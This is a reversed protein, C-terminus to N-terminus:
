SEKVFSVVRREFFFSFEEGFFRFTSFHFLNDISWTGRALQCSDFPRFSLFPLLSFQFRVHCLLGDPVGTAGYGYLRAKRIERALRFVHGSFWYGREVRTLLKAACVERRSLFVPSDLEKSVIRVITARSPVRISFNRRNAKAFVADNKAKQSSKPTPTSLNRSTLELYNLRNLKSFTIRTSKKRKRRTM